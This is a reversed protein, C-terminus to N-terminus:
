AALSDLGFGVVNSAERRRPCSFMLKRPCVRQAMRLGNGGSALDRGTCLGTSWMVTGIITPGRPRMDRGDGGM